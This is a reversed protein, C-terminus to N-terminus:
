KFAQAFSEAAAAAIANLLQDETATDGPRAGSISGGKSLEGKLDKGPYTSVAVRVNARLGGGSYELKDLVIALYFGKLKRKAIAAKAADVSEGQPAIDYGGLARLKSAIASQIVRDVDGQPRSSRNTVPSLAVYYKADPSASNGGGSASIADIARQIQLKVSSDKESAARRKLCDLSQTRKLREHAAAAAKRVIDSEDGLGDCLPPIARDDDSAGLALAANARVRFDKDTRLRAALFDVRDEAGAAASAFVVLVVLAVRSLRAIIKGWSSSRAGGEGM